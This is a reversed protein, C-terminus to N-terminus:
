AWTGLGQFNGFRCFKSASGVNTDNHVLEWWCQVVHKTGCWILVNITFAFSLRCLFHLLPRHYWGLWLQRAYRWFLRTRETWTRSRRLQGNGSLRCALFFLHRTRNHATPFCLFGVTAAVSGLKSEKKRVLQSCLGGEHYRLPRCLSCVMQLSSSFEHYKQGRCLIGGM